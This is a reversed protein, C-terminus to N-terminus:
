RPAQLLAATKLLQTAGVARSFVVITGKAPDLRCDAPSGAEGWNAEYEALSREAAEPTPFGHPFDAKTCTRMGTESPLPPVRFGAAKAERYTMVLPEATPAGDAKQQAGSLPLFLSLVAVAIALV